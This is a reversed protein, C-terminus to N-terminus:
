EKDPMLKSREKLIEVKQRADLTAVIPEVMVYGGINLVAILVRNLSHDIANAIMVLEGVVAYTAKHDDDRETKM